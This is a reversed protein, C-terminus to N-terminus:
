VNQESKPAASKVGCVCVGGAEEVEEGTHTGCTSRIRRQALAQAECWIEGKSEWVHTQHEPEGRSGGGHKVGREARPVGVVERQAGEDGHEHLEHPEEDSEGQANVLDRHTEEPAMGVRTRSRRDVRM